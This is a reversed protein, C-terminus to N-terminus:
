SSGSDHSGGRLRRPMPRPPCLPSGCAAPAAPPGTLPPRRGRAPAAPARASGAGTPNAGTPNAQGAQAAGTSRQRPAHVGRPQQGTAALGAATRNQAVAPRRATHPRRSIGLQSAGSAAAAGHLRGLWAAAKAHQVQQQHRQQGKQHTRCHQLRGPTNHQQMATGISGVCPGSRRSCAAAGRGRKRGQGRPPGMCWHRQRWAQAACTPWKALTETGSSVSHSRSRVLLAAPPLPAAAGPPPASSQARPEHARPAAGRPPRAAAPCCCCCSAAGPGAVM